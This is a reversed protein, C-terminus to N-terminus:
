EGGNDKQAAEKEAAEKAAKEKAAKREAKMKEFNIRFQEEPTLGGEEANGFDFHEFPNAGPMGFPTRPAPGQGRGGTSHPKDAAAEPKSGETKPEPKSTDSYAAAEPRVAGNAESAFVAELGDIKPAPKEEASEDKLVVPIGCFVRVVKDAQQAVKVMTRGVGERWARETKDMPVIGQSIDDCIIIRGKYRNARLQMGVAREPVQGAKILALIYREFHDVIKEDFGVATSGEECTFVDADTLGYEEKAYDLKGQYAGGIILVM